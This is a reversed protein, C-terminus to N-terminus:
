WHREDPLSPHMLGCDICDDTVPPSNDPALCVLAMLAGAPCLCRCWFRPMWRGGALVSAHPITDAM